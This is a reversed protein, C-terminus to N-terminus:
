TRGRRDLIRYGVTIEVTPTSAGSCSLAGVFATNTELIWPITFEKSLIEGVTTSRSRYQSAGNSDERFSIESRGTTTTMLTAYLSHVVISLNTGPAAVLSTAGTATISPMTFLPLTTYKTELFSM